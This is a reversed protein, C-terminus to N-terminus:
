KKRITYIGCGYDLKEIYNNISCDEHINGIDDIFDFCELFYDDNFPKLWNLIESYHFIRQENFEVRAKTSIPFSLYFRGNKDMLSLLNQFGKIHGDPDLNDGWRGLGFHEISHLCSLSDTKISFNKIDTIDGKNIKINKHQSKGIDRLDYTEIVRFSAVNTVFGNVRSGIDIHKTPNNKFIKQAVLLDQHIYHGSMLNVDYSIYDSLIPKIKDINGKLKKFKILSLLFKPIFVISYLKRLDIGFFSFFSYLKLIIRKLLIKKKIYNIM